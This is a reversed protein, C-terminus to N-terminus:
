ESGKSLGARSEMDYSLMPVQTYGMAANAVDIRYIPDTMLCPRRDAAPITTTYIRLEGKLSTVIEERWDGVVDAVMVVRGEIRPALEDGLYDSIRRRWLIERQPDADWYVTMPGFRWTLDTDIVEGSAARLWARNARKEADTDASYCEAGPYRSDIDSCMGMSHVHRTPGQHGWIIEGSSADVLCMGNRSKRRTEIGYFIELGPRAPDIDGVYHHDPHGLGLTWLPDGSDDIVVSGLIVEDRGDGDVDAAHMSHAGQGHYPRPLTRNDWRWLERLRPGSFEYAVVVMVNYTGREVILCPTRGDLYAIGLQNRSAYNYPSSTNAFLERSPWDVGAMPEGTQGNLITLHEPGSQVRGDADRPDGEGTKLAVEAKGDGDLDYVVFPSYWIGREISWGLSHEWLMDGEASYAELTFTEPSPRWYRHYPDVNGDPQKIVYDYRGDGDLDGIGIKRCGYNGQLGIARYANEEVVAAIGAPVEAEAGRVRVHYRLNDDQPAATDVFDTTRRVPAVNARVPSRGESHRYVDFAVDDADTGLMRWSVYVHGDATRLAVPARGMPEQIREDAFGVVRPKPPVARRDVPHRKLEVNDVWALVSRDGVFRLYVGDCGEPVEARAEVHSWEGNANQRVAGIDWWEVEEGKLAVVALVLHGEVVKVRASVLFGEGPRAAYRDGSSFAWDRPGDHEIRACRSGVASVSDTLAASGQDTRSWWGWGPLVNGEGHEFGGNRVPLV